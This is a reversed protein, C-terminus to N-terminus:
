APTPGRGAGPQLRRVAEPLWSLLLCAGALMAWSVTHSGLGGALAQGSRAWWEGGWALVAGLAALGLLALLAGQLVRELRPEEAAAPAQELRRAMAAAFGPPPAAAPLSRLAQALLADRRDTPSGALAREQALWDREDVAPDPRPPNPTNM